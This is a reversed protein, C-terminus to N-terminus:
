MPQQIQGRNVGKKLFFSSPLLFTLPFWDSTDQKSVAFIGNLCRHKSLAQPQIWGNGPRM